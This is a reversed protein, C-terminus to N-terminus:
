WWNVLWYGVGGSYILSRRPVLRGKSHPSGQCRSFQGLQLQLNSESRAFVYNQLLQLPSPVNRYRVATRSSLKLATTRNSHSLFCCTILLAFRCRVFSCAVCALLPTASLMFQDRKLLNNLLAYVSDKIYIDVSLMNLLVIADTFNCTAKKQRKKDNNGLLSKFSGFYGLLHKQSIAPAIIM